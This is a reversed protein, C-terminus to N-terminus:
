PSCGDPVGEATCFRTDAVNLLQGRPNTYLRTPCSGPEHCGETVTVGVTYGVDSMGAVFVWFHGNVSRGDVVKVTVEVNDPDFFWFYGSQPTLQVASANRVAGVRRDDLLLQVHLGGPMALGRLPEAIEIEQALAPTGDITVVVTYTGEEGLPEVTFQAAERQPTCPHIGTHTRFAAIRIERGAVVPAPPFALARCGGDYSVAIRLRDERTPHLQHGTEDGATHFLMPTVNIGVDYDEVPQATAPAASLALVLASAVLVLRSSSCSM